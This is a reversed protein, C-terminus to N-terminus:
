ALASFKISIAERDGVTRRSGCVFGRRWHCRRQGLILSRVRTLHQNTGPPPQCVSGISVHFVLAVIGADSSMLRIRDFQGPARGRRRGANGPLSKMFTTPACSIEKTPSRPGMWREGCARNDGVKQLHEASASSIPRDKSLARLGDTTSLQCRAIFCTWWRPVPKAKSTSDVAKSSPEFLGLMRGPMLMSALWQAGWRSLPTAIAPTTRRCGRGVAHPGAGTSASLQGADVAQRVVGRRPRDRRCIRTMMGASQERTQSRGYEDARVSVHNATM